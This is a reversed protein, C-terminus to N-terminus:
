NRRLMKLPLQDISAKVEDIRDSTDSGDLHQVVARLKDNIRGLLDVAKLATRMAYWAVALAVLQGATGGKEIAQWLVAISDADM